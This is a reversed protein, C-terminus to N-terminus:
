TKTIPAPLAVKFNEDLDIHITSAQKKYNEYLPPLSLDKSLDDTKAEISEPKTPFKSLFDKSIQETPSKQDIDLKKM